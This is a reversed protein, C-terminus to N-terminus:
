IGSKELLKPIKNNVFSKPIIKFLDQLQAIAYRNAFKGFSEDSNLRQNKYVYLMREIFAPLETFTVYQYIERGFKQKSDGVYIHYGEVTGNDAEISVGLLTIDSKSHQACSKECGSFHINVPCDLIVRTELYEALALAHDKTNTASAACGKKGSCAVLASKINTASFDLGLCAIERQVDGFWQQPIDTLLLNQWPTLRLTGSGYKAALDALGRMQRSELRGLPLVVGLYFLGKQRQPHIGIHQYSANSREGLGEGQLLPSFKEGKRQLSPPQPTLDNRAESRLLPFPLRQQVEQLYNECGLTNLLELLRLRRKSTTNSHVLYVDALAALVPLCEEPPLLIGMDSPPQGKTGVSLSLRFYVDSNVLVAAFLIDNLRDCVRIIGGGDFCVSFKASLGSLAPHAAIYHEWGQVFPRTDILEQPDIGATPSTMINRIHDVVPNHSGLGISQLYKLVETNIGNHIERVQLNARNTVDLYGGGHQEAIDAIARCQQSSIIGGPIRIRSLIGDAAPTAYFLGPCTAFGSLLSPVGEGHLAPLLRQTHISSMKLTPM